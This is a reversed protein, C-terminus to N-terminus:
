SGIEEILGSQEAVPIFRTCPIFAEGQRDWRLLAEAGMLSGRQDFQLQYHLKLENKEIATSLKQELDLAERISASLSASYVQVKGPGRRQAAALATRASQIPDDDATTIGPWTSIGICASLHISPLRELSRSTLRLSKQLRKGHQIADQTSQIGDTQIIVFSDSDLRALWDEPTIQDRLHRAIWALLRNGNAIGFTDNIEQFHDIDLCTVTIRTNKSVGSIVDRILESIYTDTAARNPLCTLRDTQNPDFREGKTSQVGPCEQLTGISYLPRGKNDYSTFCRHDVFCEDGDKLRLRHRIRGAQGSLQSQQLETRVRERDEKAVVALLQDM